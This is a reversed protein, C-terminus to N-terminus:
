SNDLALSEPLRPDKLPVLPASATLRSAAAVFCGGVALLAALDAAGFHIGHPHLTPMVLWHLDVFHMLLIWASGFFSLADLLIAFPATLWHILAGALGPGVLQAMSDSVGIKANAEALREKGVRETMFVQYAPWGIVTLPVTRFTPFVFRVFTVTTSSRAPARRPGTERAGFWVLLKM